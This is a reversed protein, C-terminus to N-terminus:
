HVSCSRFHTCFKLNSATGFTFVSGNLTGYLRMNSFERIKSQNWSFHVLGLYSPKTHLLKFKLLVIEATKHVFSGNKPIHVKRM